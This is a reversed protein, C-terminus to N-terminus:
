GPSQGPLWGKGAPENGQRIVIGDTVFPLPSVPWTHRLASIQELTSVPKSWLQALTFGSSALTALKQKMEKPGDPWAWIFVDLENLFDSHAQRMMAGAVKGRANIGGMKKQIHGSRKWFLEGQLISNALPGSLTKPIAEILTAKATWDEGKIGDGRSLLQSLRGQRYILTVAVGDIKPQVWLDPKGEIWRALTVSDPIKKLGTHSIPHLVKGNTSLLPGSLSTAPQYCHQWENLRIRLRDYVADSINSEGRLYYAEDWQNLQGKLKEIEINAQGVSWVPCSASAAGSFIFLLFLLKNLWTM